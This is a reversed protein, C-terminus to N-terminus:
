HRFVIRKLHDVTISFNGLENEGGFGYISSGAGLSGEITRGDVLTVNVQAHDSFSKSIEISHINDFAIAQGSLLHLQADYQATQRFNDAFLTTESGDRATVVVSARGEGQNSRVPNANPSQPQGTPTETSAKESSIGSKTAPGADGHKAGLVGSQYLGLTLGGVATILAAVGTLIGPLSTWFGSKKEADDV